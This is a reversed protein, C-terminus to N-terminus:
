YLLSYYRDITKEFELLDISRSYRIVEKGETYLILLPLSFVNFHASIDIHKEGSLEMAFIKNYDKVINDVKFKIAECAGCDLGTFYLITIPNEKINNQITNIDSVQIM